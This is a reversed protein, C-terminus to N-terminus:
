QAVLEAPYLSPRRLRLDSTRIRQPASPKKATKASPAKSRSLPMVVPGTPKAVYAAHTEAALDTLTSDLLHAYMETTRVSGHGLLKGVEPLTWKPGWWGCLLATACTHRLLHWWVPRGISGKSTRWAAPVKGKQRRAGGVAGRKKDIKPERYATPFFLAEPNKPAYSPLIKEWARAADLGLGFLPVKRVRRNKPTLGKSGFRVLVYPPAGDTHVDETRLSWMEGQRLGTGIAFWIIWREHDDGLSTALAKMEDPKLPWEEPVRDLSRDDDTKRLKVGLVPNSKCFGETIADSFLARALNLAHKQSSYGLNRANRHTGHKYAVKKRRLDNTWDIIASTDVATLPMTAWKAGAIHTDFRSVDTKYNRNGLRFKALWSHGWKAATMGGTPIMRGSEIEDLIADRLAVAEEPTACLEPNPKNKARQLRVRYKGSPLRDINRLDHATM